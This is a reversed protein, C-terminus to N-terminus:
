SNLTEIVKKDPNQILVGFPTIKIDENIPAPLWGEYSNNSGEILDFNHYDQGDDAFTYFSIDYFLGLEGRVIVGNSSTPASFRLDDILASSFLLPFTILLLVIIVTNKM